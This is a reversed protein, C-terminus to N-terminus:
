WVSSTQQFLKANVQIKEIEGPAFLEPQRATRSLLQFFTEGAEDMRGLQFCVAAHLDLVKWSYIAADFGWKAQAPAQDLFHQKSYSSFIYAIDWQQIASYYKIMARLSEGRAPDSEFASLFSEEAVPWEYQLAHMISGSAMYSYYLPEGGAKGSRIFELFYTLAKEFHYKRIELESAANAAMEHTWGLYFDKTAAMNKGKVLVTNNLLDIFTVYKGYSDSSISGNKQALSSLISAAFRPGEELHYFTLHTINIISRRM